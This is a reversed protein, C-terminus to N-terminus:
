TVFVLGVLWQQTVAAVHLQKLVLVLLPSQRCNDSGAQPKSCYIFPFGTCISAQRCVCQQRGVTAGVEQDMVHGAHAHCAKRMINNHGGMAKNMLEPYRRTLDSFDKVDTVLVSVLVKDGPKSARPAGKSRKGQSAYCVVHPTVSQWCEICWLVHHM